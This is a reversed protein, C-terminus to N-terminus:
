KAAGKVKFHTTLHMGHDANSTKEMYAAVHAELDSAEINGATVHEGLMARALKEDPGDDQVEFKTVWTRHAHNPMVHESLYFAVADKRSLTRGGSPRTKDDIIKAIVQAEPLMIETHTPLEKTVKMLYGAGRAMPKAKGSALDAVTVKVDDPVPEWDYFKSHHAVIRM